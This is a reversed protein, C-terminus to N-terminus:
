TNSVATFRPRLWCFGLPRARLALGGLAIKRVGAVLQAPTRLQVSTSQM